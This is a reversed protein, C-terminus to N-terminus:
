RRDGGGGGGITGRTSGVLVPAENQGADAVAFCELITGLRAFDDFECRIRAILIRAIRAITATTKTWVNVTTRIQAVNAHKHRTAFLVVNHEDTAVAHVVVKIWLVKAQRWAFVADVGVLPLVTLGLQDVGDLGFVARSAHQFQQLVDLMDSGFDEGGPEDVKTYFGRAGTLLEHLLIEALLQRGVVRAERALHVM